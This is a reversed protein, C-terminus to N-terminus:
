KFNRGLDTYKKHLVTVQQALDELNGENHIIDHARHLRDQRHAQSKLIAEVLSKETRDRKVVREIQMAEPLDVVLIRNILAYFEVELLLPIIAICYPTKLAAIQKAMHDRIKPHLLSELWLREKADNFIIERLRTRNLEGNPLVIDKGFHAVIQTFASMNPQTLERAIIDADILPVGKKAFLDAVTTKGSGIGGTLGVVLM